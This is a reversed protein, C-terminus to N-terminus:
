LMDKLQSILEKCSLEGVGQQGEWRGQLYIITALGEFEPHDILERRSQM